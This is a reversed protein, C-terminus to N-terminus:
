RRQRSWAALGLAAILLVLVLGYAPQLGFWDALRALLLPMFLIAAGASMTIRASGEVMRDPVTSLALANIIPFQGAVGFGALVLGILAGAPGPSLWFLLFGGLSAALSIMLLQQEKSRMLLRSVLWRGVLMSGMFASLGTAANAKSLGSVTELYDAAWFIICFEVAVVLLALTWFRWYALPLPPKKERATNAAQTEGPKPQASLSDRRYVLWLIPGAPLMIALAGRWTLDTQAFFGVAIPALTSLLSAIMTSEALAVARHEGHQEALAANLLAVIMVGLLGMSFAGAVTVAPSRGAILLLTGLAIGFVGVWVMRRAGFRQVLLNLVLSTLIIGLAYASFHFSAVTYSLNLEERLFPTLPGLSNLLYSYYSITLYAQWTRRTRLFTM